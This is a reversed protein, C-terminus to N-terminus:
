AKEAATRLKAFAVIMILCSVFLLLFGIFLPALVIGWLLLNGATRFRPIGTAEATRQYARRLPFAAVLSFFWEPLLVLLLLPAFGMVERFGADSLWKDEVGMYSQLAYRMNVLEEAKWFGVGVTIGMGAVILLVATRVSLSIEKIGFSEEVKSFANDLLVLVYIQAFLALLLFISPDSPPSATFPFPVIGLWLIGAIIGYLGARIGYSGARALRLPDSM